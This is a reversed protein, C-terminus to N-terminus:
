SDTIANANPSIWTWRKKLRKYYFSNAVALHITEAFTALREGRDNRDGLCFNGILKGRHLKKRNKRQLRGNFGHAEDVELYFGELEEEECLSTPAYAQINKLTRSNDISILLTGTRNSHLTWEILKSSWESGVIFGIGGISRSGSGEGLTIYSGDKWM